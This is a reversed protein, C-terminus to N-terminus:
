KKKKFAAKKLDCKLSRGYDDEFRYDDEEDSYGFAVELVRGKRGKSIIRHVKEAPVVFEDGASADFIDEGIQVQLGEDLIVWMDDRLNHYHLSTKRNPLVTILKVTCTQNFSLQKFEGWPKKVLM